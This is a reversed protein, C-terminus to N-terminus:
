IYVLPLCRNRHRAASTSALSGAAVIDWVSREALQAIEALAQHVYGSRRDIAEKTADDVAFLLCVLVM